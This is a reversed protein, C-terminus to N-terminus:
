SADDVERRARELQATTLRAALPTIDRRRRLWDEARWRRLAVRRRALRAALALVDNRGPQPRPLTRPYGYASLQRRVATEILAVDEAPLTQQWADIRSVDVGEGVRAHWQKFVPAVDDAARSHDLMQEEFTEGLFGCIQRLHTRPDRLLDEYRVRHYTDDPLRRAARRLEEDALMWTSIAGLRGTQWWPMQELSAVCARPDRVLHVLQADPYLRMITDLYRWYVPRKEGWRSKGRSRAFERWVIGTASGFTAPGAVIAAIVADRDIRLDEFKTEGPRTIWAGLRARNSRQRLDGFRARQEYAPILFRTEPPIAIRPHAHLMASLLTTGSRPCGVLFVPRDSNM